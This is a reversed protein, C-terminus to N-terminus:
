GGSIWAGDDDALVEGDDLGVIEDASATGSVQVLLATGLRGDSAVAAAGFTYIGGDSPPEATVWPSTTVPSALASLDDFSTWTGGRARVAVGEIEALDEGAEVSWVLSWADTIRNVSLSTVAPLPDGDAGIVVSVTASWPGPIAYISVARVRLEVADGALYGPVSASGSAAAITRVLWDTAGALRHQLEFSGVIAASGIGPAVEVDLGNPDDTGALGTAVTRFVAAAPVATVSGIPSGVRGTWEPPVEADTAADIEPAADVLHLIVGNGEARELGTARCMRTESGAPGLHVYDGARPVPGAGTLTVARHTGAGEALTAAVSSGIADEEDAFVRWRMAWGGAEIAVDEDLWVRRGAVGKVRADRHVRQVTVQSVAIQDGRTVVRVAGPTETQLTEPRHILEYQRRRAEIWIEDPHTKGPIALDETVVIDGIHGPWPVLRESSQWKNTEDLFSIRFADPFRVYNRRWRFGSSVRPGIHDVVVDTPRDIVVGWRLGDHRPSARGAAAIEILADRASIEETVWRDYRLNKAACWAAWDAVAALDIGGDTVPYARQPGQLGVRYAAAPSRTERTVWAEAGADWDPAIRAAICNFAGLQGNLQYTAKVRVAALALPVPANIPSEPRFTQLAAWMVKDIARGGDKAERIMRMCEVEYSGRAPFAWRHAVFFPQTTSRSLDITTEETWTGAGVARWRIRVQSIMRRKKGTKNWDSLGSPYALVVCASAADSATYRVEPKDIPDGDIVKGADDRPLPRRLELSLQEEVVQEPYFTIPDDGAVGERTEMEIGDYESIPTDGVRWDTMSVRGVSIVLVFRIYQQDGVVETYPPAFYLPWIRLRGYLVPLPGGPNSRNQTGSISYRKPEEDAKPPPILAALLAQGAFMAGAMIAGKATTETIGLATALGPGFYWALAFAFVLVVIQLISSLQGSQPVVRIVLHVGARVRWTAWSSREAVLSGHPTVLVVRLSGLLREDARPFAERVIDLITRGAAVTMVRRGTAPDLGPMVTVPATPAAPVLATM